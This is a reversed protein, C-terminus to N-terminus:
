GSAPRTLEITILDEGTVGRFLIGEGTEVDLM